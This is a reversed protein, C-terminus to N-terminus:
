NFICLNDKKALITRNKAQEETGVYYRSEFKLPIYEKWEVPVDHWDGDGGYVSVDTVRNRVSYSYATVRIRDGSKGSSVFSCKLIAKTATQPHVVYQDDVANAM